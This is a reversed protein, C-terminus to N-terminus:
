PIHTIRLFPRGSAGERSIFKPGDGNVSTIAMGFNSGPNDIWSQVTGTDFTTTYETDPQSPSFAAISTTGSSPPGAGAASWAQGTARQNWTAQTESWQENLVVVNVPAGQDFNTSIHLEASIVTTSGLASLDFRMLAVCLPSGDAIVFQNNAFNSTAFNVQIWTDSTPEHETTLPVSAPGDPAPGDPEVVPSDPTSSDPTVVVASDPMPEDAAPATYSCAGVGAVLAFM